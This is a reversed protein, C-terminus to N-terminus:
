KMQTTTITDNKAKELYASFKTIEKVVGFAFKTAAIKLNEQPVYGQKGVGQPTVDLNVNDVGPVAINKPM